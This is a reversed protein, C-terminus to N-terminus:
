SRKKFDYDDFTVNQMEGDNPRWAVDALTLVRSTQDSINMHASAVNKPVYIMNPNEESSEVEVYKGDKDKFVFVVKGHICVFYSDRKLHLHPGKVEGPTVSTVYIMKPTNKIINDYDRYVVVLSGNVHGDHIDKTEHRELNIVNEM